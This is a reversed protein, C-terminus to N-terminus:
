LQDPLASQRSPCWTQQYGDGLGVFLDACVYTSASELLHGVLYGDMVVAM